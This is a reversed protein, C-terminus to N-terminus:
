PNELSLDTLFRWTRIIELESTDEVMTEPFPEFPSSLRVIRKAADDLVKHGSSGLVEVRKVTGNPLLAVLLRVDGTLQAQRAAEPYNLNGIREIKNLWRMVYSADDARKTSVATLTRVRPRNAYRQRKDDLLAKLSAIDQTQQLVIQDITANSLPHNESLETRLPLRDQGNGTIVRALSEQQEKVLLMQENPQTQRISNDEFEAEETTRLLQREDLTGSGIQNSQALYDAEDPEESSSHHVLTVDLTPAPQDNKGLDFALGFVLLAHLAIALFLTFSLRDVARIQPTNAM